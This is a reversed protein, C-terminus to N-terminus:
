MCKYIGGEIGFIKGRKCVYKACIITHSKIIYWDNIAQWGFGDRLKLMGRAEIYSKWM